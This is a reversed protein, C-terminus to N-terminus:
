LPRRPARSTTFAAISSVKADKELVTVEDWRRSQLLRWATALGVLGGGVVVVSRTKFGPVM